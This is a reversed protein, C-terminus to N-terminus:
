IEQKAFDIKPLHKWLHALPPSHYDNKNGLYAAWWSFTSGGGIVTEANKLLWFDFVYDPINPLPNKLSIVNLHQLEATIQPDNSCVIVNRNKRVKSLIENYQDLSLSHGLKVYDGRRIHLGVWPSYKKTYVELAEDIEKKFTFWKLIHQKHKTLLRFSLEDQFYGLFNVRDKPYKYLKELSVVPPLQQNPLLLWKLKQLRTYSKLDNLQHTPLLLTKIFDRKNSHSKVGNFIECGMWHPFSHEFNNLEAYLRTGAYQFLWNGLGSRGHKGLKRFTVM